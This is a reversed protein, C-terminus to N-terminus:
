FRFQLGISAESASRGAVNGDNFRHLAGMIVESSRSLPIGYNISLDLQRAEPTLAVDLSSFAVSGNSRAVPLVVNASGSQIANPLSLRLSLRDGLGWVDQAAYSLAVSNYRVQSMTMDSLDGEPAAVGFSGSLRIEQNGPIPAAWEFTALGHTGRLSDGDLLAQMGAFGDGEVMASLGLRLQGGGLDFDRSLAVGYSALAGDAAPVLLALRMDEGQFELEQGTSFQGFASSSQFPDTVDSYLDVAFLGNISAMPDYEAIAQASLVSAPTDFGTGLGDIIVLDFQALRTSLANGAMGGSVLTPSNFSAASGNSRPLYSGGIPSLAAKMNLFGHGYTNSYGHKVGTAFEVYGTHTFFNNDASALLRARLEEANLSPFAEALLAISGSIQPAAFSTGTGLAYDSNGTAVAGWVTGDAAMCWAAAELCKSSIVTASQITSGSFVPIANIATIWSNQLEPALVPLAAMLDATTRTNDNSAAFVIVATQALDRISGYYASSNGGVFSQFNSQTADVEIGWSNNQVIAGLALAQLNAATISASSNFFGLQLNAGPAVGIIQGNNAYGAAISAVTTGHDENGPVYGTSVGIIKGAIEDHSQLFGSDVISITQGAGTLGAAHAYEVRGNAVSNSSYIPSGPASYSWNFKQIQYKPLALLATAVAELPTWDTVYALTLVSLPVHSITVGIANEDNKCASLLGTGLLGLLAIRFNMGLGRGVM